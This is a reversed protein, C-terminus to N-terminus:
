LRNQFQKLFEDDDMELPNKVAKAPAAAVRSPAAAAAKANPAVQPKPAIVRTAVPAAAVPLTTQRSQDDQAVLDSFKGTAVMQDGVHKYNELWNFGAPLTGIMRQRDMEGVIRTYIGNDLQSVMTDIIGPQKFLLEKSAQDWQKHIDTLIAKGSDSSEAVELAEKFNAEEDSVTHNGGKYTPEADTDIDLPNLGSEKLFKQIAAPDKRDLDILFSLREADLKNNELMLLTKRHPALAQMKQTYNAGKQALQRLEDPSLVLDKGNAKIPATLSEYMVQYNPAEEVTTSAAPIVPQGHEDLQPEAAAAQADLEEQSLEQTQEELPQNVVPEQALPNQEDIVVAAAAQAAETVVPAEDVPASQIQMFEDDSLEHLKSTDM